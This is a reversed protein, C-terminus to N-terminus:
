AKGAKRHSYTADFKSLVYQYTDLEGAGSPVKSGPSPHMFFPVSYRYLGKPSNYQVRHITSKLTKDTWLSLLDGLNIVFADPVVPVSQWGAETHIELGADGPLLLTICLVDIYTPPAQGYDTHADTNGNKPPYKLLKLMYVPDTLYDKVFTTPDVDKMLGTAVVSAMVDTCVRQCQRMYDEVEPLVADQGKPVLNGPSILNDSGFFLGEKNEKIHVGEPDQNFESYDVSSFYGRHNKSNKVHVQLKAEPSVDFLQKAIGWIRDIKEPAIHHGGGPKANALFFFGTLPCHSM